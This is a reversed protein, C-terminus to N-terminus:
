YEYPKKQKVSLSKKGLNQPIGVLALIVKKVKRAVLERLESIFYSEDRLIKWLSKETGRTKM